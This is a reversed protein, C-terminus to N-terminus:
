KFQRQEQRETDRRKITHRKDHLKKGKAIALSLKIHPGALFFSIPVITLKQNRAQQMKELETRRLLLKRPRAPDYSQLNSAHDYKRVSANTLWAEGNSSITVYASQINAGGARISKVEHGELAIGATFKELLEYDFRARKNTALIRNTM